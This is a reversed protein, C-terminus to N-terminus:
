TDSIIKKFKIKKIEKNDLSKKFNFNLDKIIEREYNKIKSIVENGHVGIVITHDYINYVVVNECFTCNKNLFNTIKSLFQAKNLIIQNIHNKINKM